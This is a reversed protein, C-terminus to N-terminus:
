IGCPVRDTVVESFRIPELTRPAVVIHVPFHDRAAPSCFDGPQREVITVQSGEGTQLIRRIEVSDGAEFREGVAAVLVMERTWDIEPPQALLSGKHEQWFAVWGTPTQPNGVPVSLFKTSEELKAGSEEGRDLTGFPVSGVYASTFRSGQTFDRVL